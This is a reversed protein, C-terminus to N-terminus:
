VSSLRHAFVPSGVAFTVPSVSDAGARMGHENDFDNRPPPSRSTSGSASPFYSVADWRGRSPPSQRSLCGACITRGDGM